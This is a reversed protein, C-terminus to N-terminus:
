HMGERSCDSRSTFAAISTANWRLAPWGSAVGRMLLPENREVAARFNESHSTAPALGDAPAVGFDMEAVWAGTKGPYATWKMSGAARLDAETIEDYRSM